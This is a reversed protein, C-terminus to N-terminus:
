VHIHSAFQWKKSNVNSKTREKKESWKKKQPLTKRENKKPSLIHRAVAVATTATESNLSKNGNRHPYHQRACKRCECMLRVWWHVCRLSKGSVSQSDSQSWEISPHSTSTGSGIENRTHVCREACLNHKDASNRSITSFSSESARSLFVDM